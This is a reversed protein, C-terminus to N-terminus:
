YQRALDKKLAERAENFHNYFYEDHAEIRSMHANTAPIQDQEARDQLIKNLATQLARMQVHFIPDLTNEYRNLMGTFLAYTVIYEM